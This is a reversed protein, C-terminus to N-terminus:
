QALYGGDVPLIHGTIMSAAPSALFLVALAVEDAEAMRGMPTVSRIREMLQLSAELEGIFPTRTWTPAVANVRIQLPAWEIALARTMNVVGGKSTQYSINPYLGGGSLGMISAINVISGGASMHRAATRACLFTGTLNVNLVQNWADLELELSPKRIAMGASNILVDIAQDKAIAAFIREIEGADTVDLLRGVSNPIRRAEREVAAADRDLLVVKAGAESLLRSCALGIGSAGGTVLAVRGDVRFRGLGRARETSSVPDDQSVVQLEISPISFSRVSEVRQASRCDLCRRSRECRAAPTRNRADALCTLTAISMFRASRM